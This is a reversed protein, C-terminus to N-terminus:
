SYLWSLPDHAPSEHGWGAQPKRWGGAGEIITPELRWADRKRARSEADYVDTFYTLMVADAKDCSRGLAEKIEDKGSVVVKGSMKKYKLCNFEERLETDDPIQINGSEFQDRVKWWLEDRCRRYLDPRKASAGFNVGQVSPYLRLFQHYAGIGTGSKDIVVAAVTYGQREMDNIYDMLMNALDISDTNNIRTIDVIINDCRAAVYTANGGAFAVDVGLIISGRGPIPLNRNCAQFVWEYPILSDDNGRPPLGKVNVRYNDSDAGYKHRLSEILDKSVLDSEEADWRLRLWQDKTRGYFIDHAFGNTRNPNCIVL